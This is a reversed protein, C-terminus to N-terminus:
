ELNQRFSALVKSIKESFDKKNKDIEKNIKNHLAKLADELVDTAVQKELDQFNTDDKPMEKKRRKISYTRIIPLFILIINSLVYLKALTKLFLLLPSSLVSSSHTLAISSVTSIIVLQISYHKKIFLKKSIIKNCM